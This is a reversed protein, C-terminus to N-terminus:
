QEGCVECKDGPQDEAYMTYGWENKVLCPECITIAEHITLWTGDPQQRNTNRAAILEM